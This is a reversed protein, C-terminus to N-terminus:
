FRLLYQLNQQTSSVQYDSPFDPKLVRKWQVFNAVHAALGTDDGDDDNMMMGAVQYEFDYEQITM